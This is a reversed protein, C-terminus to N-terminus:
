FRSGGEPLDRARVARGGYAGSIEWIFRAVDRRDRALILRVEETEDDLALLGFPTEVDFYLDVDRTYLGSRVPARGPRPLSDRRVVVPDAMVIRAPEISIDDKNKIYISWFRTDLSNVSFKSQMNLHIRFQNDSHHTGAYETLHGRICSSDTSVGELTDGCARLAEAQIMDRGYLVAEVLIRPADEGYALPDPIEQRCLWKYRLTSDNLAVQGSLRMPHPVQRSPILEPETRPGCAALFGALLFAASVTLMPFRVTDTRM